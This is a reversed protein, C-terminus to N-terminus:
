LIALNQPKIGAKAAAAWTGNATVTSEKCTPPHAPQEQPQWPERAARGKHGCHTSCPAGEMEPHPIAWPKM